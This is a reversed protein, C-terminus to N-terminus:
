LSAAISVPIETNREVGPLYGQNTYQWLSYTAFGSPLKPSMSRLHVDSINYTIIHHSVWLDFEIFSREETHFYENWFADNTLIMPNVGTRERILRLLRYLRNSMQIRSLRGPGPKLAPDEEDDEERDSPRNKTAVAIMDRSANFNIQSIAAMINAVQDEPTVDGEEDSTRFQHWIGAMLKHNLSENFNRAFYPDTWNGGETSRTFAFKLNGCSCLAKWNIEGNESSIDVGKDFSKFKSATLSLSCHLVISLFFLSLLLQQHRAM